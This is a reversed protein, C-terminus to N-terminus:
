QGFDTLFNQADCAQTGDHELVVLISNRVQTRMYRTHDRDLCWATQREMGASSERAFHINAASILRAADGSDNSAKGM